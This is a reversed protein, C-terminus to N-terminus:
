ISPELCSASWSLCLGVGHPVFLVPSVFMSPYTIFQLQPLLQLTGSDFSQINVEASYSGSKLSLAALFCFNLGLLCWLSSDPQQDAARMPLFFPLLPLDLHTIVVNVIIDLIIIIVVM